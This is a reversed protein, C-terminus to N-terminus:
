ARTLLRHQSLRTLKHKGEAAGRSTLQHSGKLWLPSERLSSLMIGSISLFGLYALHVQTEWSGTGPHEEM